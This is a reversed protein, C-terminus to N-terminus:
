HLHAVGAVMQHFQDIATTSLDIADHHGPDFSVELHADAASLGTSLPGTQGSTHGVNAAHADFNQNTETGLNPQFVFSDHGFGGFTAAALTPANVSLSINHDGGVAATALVHETGLAFSNIPSSTAPDSLATPAVSLDVAHDSLGTPSPPADIAHDGGLVPGDVVSFRIQDGAADSLDTTHNNGLFSTITSQGVQDSALSPGHHSATSADFLSSSGNGASDMAVATVAPSVHEAGLGSTNVAPISVHDSLAPPTVSAVVTHKGGFALTDNYHDVAPPSQTQSFQDIGSIHGQDIVNGAATTTSLRNGASDMSLSPDASHALQDSHHGLENDVFNSATTTVSLGNSASGSHEVATVSPVVHDAGLVPTNVTPSSTDGGAGAAPPDYIYTKGGSSTVVLTGNFDDFTFTAAAGHAGHLTLIEDGNKFQVSYSTAAFDDDEVVDSHAADPATGSFGFIQGSFRDVDGDADGIVLKGYGQSNDFTVNVNSEEDFHLTGGQITASGGSIKTEVELTGGSTAELQGSTNDINSAVILTGGASAELVGANTITGALIIASVGSVVDLTSGAKIAMTGFGIINTSDELTLIASSNVDGIDLAGQDIVNIGDLTAGHGSSGSGREIDLTSGANIKVTGINGDSITTGGELTLIAGSHGDGIDLAGHDIVNVGDLTAGHSSSGSGREVDLTSGANIKVTASNSDSITTGDELTLIAGSHGDGIDLAGHDIVNIGDLTAGHSSLGSGREVDLTDGSGITLTGGGTITTGDNLTVTPDITINGSLTVGDLTM